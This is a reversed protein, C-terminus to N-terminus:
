IYLKRNSMYAIEKLQKITYIGNNAEKGSRFGFQAALIQSEHFPSFKTLVIDMLLKVIISGIYIDKYTHSDQPRGKKWLANICSFAWKQPPEESELYGDHFQSNNNFELLTDVIKLVEIEVDLSSKNDKDNKKISKKVEEDYPENINGNLSLGKLSRIHM